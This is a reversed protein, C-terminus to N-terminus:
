NIKIFTVWMGGVNHKRAEKDTMVGMSTSFFQSVLDMKLVRPM